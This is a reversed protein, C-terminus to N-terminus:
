LPVCAPLHNREIRAFDEIPVTRKTFMRFVSADLGRHVRRGSKPILRIAIAPTETRPDCLQEALIQIPHVAEIGALGHVQSRCSFGPAVLRAEPRRLAAPILVRNALAESVEYHGHEYGFSGAM